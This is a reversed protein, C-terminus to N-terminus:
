WVDWADSTSEGAPVSENVPASEGAPASEVVPASADAPTGAPASVSGESSNDPFATDSSSGLGPLVPTPTAAITQDTQQAPEEKLAFPGIHFYWLAAIALVAASILLGIILAAVPMRRARGPVAAKERRSSRSRRQGTGNGSRHIDYGDHRRPLRDYDDYDDYGGGPNGYDDYDDYGGGPNGHDDYDDYGYGPNDYNDYDNYGRAPGNYNNYDDYGDYDTGTEGPQDLM